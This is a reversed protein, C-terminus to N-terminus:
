RRGALVARQAVLVVRHAVHAVVQVLAGLAHRAAPPGLVADVGDARVAAVADGLAGTRGAVGPVVQRLAAGTLLVM